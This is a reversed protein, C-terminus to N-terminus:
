QPLPGKGEVAVSSAPQSAGGFMRHFRWLLRDESAVVGVEQLKFREMNRTLIRDEAACILQSGKRMIEVVHDICDSFPHGLGFGKESQGNPYVIHKLYNMASCIMYKVDEETLGNEKSLGLLEFLSKFQISSMAKVPEGRFAPWVDEKYEDITIISMEILIFGAMINVRKSDILDLTLESPQIHLEQAITESIAHVQARILKFLSHIFKLQTARFPKLLEFQSMLAQDYINGEDTAKLHSPEALKKYLESDIEGLYKTYVALKTSQEFTKMLEAFNVIKFTM